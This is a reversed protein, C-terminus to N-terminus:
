RCPAVSNIAKPAVAWANRAAPPRVIWNCLSPAAAYKSGFWHIGEQVNGPHGLAVVRVKYKDVHGDAYKVNFLAALPIPKAKIGM